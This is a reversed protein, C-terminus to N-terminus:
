QCMEMIETGTTFITDTKGTKNSWTEYDSAVFNRSEIVKAEERLQCWALIMHYQNRGKIM